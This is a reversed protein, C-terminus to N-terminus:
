DNIGKLRELKHDMVLDIIEQVAYKSEKNYVLFMLCLTNVRAVDQMDMNLLDTIYQKNM